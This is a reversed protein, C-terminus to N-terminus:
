IVDEMYFSPAGKPMTEEKYVGGNRLIQFQYNGSGSIIEIELRVTRGGEFEPLDESSWNYTNIPGVTKTSGNQLLYSMRYVPTENDLNLIQYKVTWTDDM